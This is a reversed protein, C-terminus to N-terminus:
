GGGQRRLADRIYAEAGENAEAMTKPKETPTPVVQPGSGPVSAPPRRASGERQVADGLLDDRFELYDQRSAEAIAELSTGGRANAAVFTLMKGDPIPELGDKKDASRWLELIQDLADNRAEEADRAERQEREKQREEHDQLLPTAWSPPQDGDGPDGNRERPDNAPPPTSNGDLHREVAEKIEQPMQDLNRAVNVWSTVPDRGFSVEWEALQRLSDADYGMSELDKYPSLRDNVEKFRSYPVTEPPGDSPPTETNSAEAPTGETAPPTEGTGPPLGSPDEEIRRQIEDAMNGM